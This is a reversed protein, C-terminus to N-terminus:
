AISVRSGKAWRKKAGHRRAHCMVCLAEGNSVVFRLKKSEAWPVVHHATLDQTSGCDACRGGTLVAKRWARHLPGEKETAVGRRIGPRPVHGLRNRALRRTM